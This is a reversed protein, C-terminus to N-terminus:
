KQPTMGYIKTEYYARPIRGSIVVYNMANLEENWERILRYAFARSVNLDRMVDDVYIYMLLGGIMALWDSCKTAGKDNKNYAVNRLMDLKKNCKTADEQM